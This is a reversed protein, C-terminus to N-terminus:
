VERKTGCHGCYKFYCIVESQCKKCTYTRVGVDNKSINQKRMKEAEAARMFLVKLFINM